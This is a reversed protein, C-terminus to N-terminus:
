DELYSPRARTFGLVFPRPPIFVGKRTPRCKKSLIYLRFVIRSIYLRLAIAARFKEGAIFEASLRLSNRTLGSRHICVCACV